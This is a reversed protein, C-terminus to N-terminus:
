FITYGLGLHIVDARGAYSKLLVQVSWKPTIAYRIGIQQFTSSRIKRNIVPFGIQLPLSLKGVNFAYSTYIGAQVKGGDIKPVLEEEPDIGLSRDYFTFAGIGLQSRTSLKKTLETNIINILYRKSEIWPTQKVGVSSYAQWKWKKTLPKDQKIIEDRKALSGYRLGFSFAPINLGLNPLTSSGNSLHSFSLGANLYMKSTLKWENQWLGNVYGNIATGIIVNKHNTVKNYPNEIWGLGAALRLSSTFSRYKLIPLKIFTFAGAMKGIYRKSGTHGLFLGAGWDPASKNQKAPYKTPMQFYAEGFYSYSDRVYVAKPENTIFSGYHFQSGFSARQFFSQQAQAKLSPLLLICCYIIFSKLGQMPAYYHNARCIKLFTKLKGLFVTM